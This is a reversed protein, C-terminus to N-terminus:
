EELDLALGVLAAEFYIMWIYGAIDYVRNRSTVACLGIKEAGDDQSSAFCVPAPTPLWSRM